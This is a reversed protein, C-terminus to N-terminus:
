LTKEMLYFRGKRWDVNGTKVFGLQNYLRQAYPNLSFVDLRIDRIKKERLVQEIHEMTQRAIGMNQLEPHVCLRHIVYFEEDPCIWKGNKYEEDCEQNLVYIVAIHGQLSGIFLQEKEIDEGLIAKDPYISDWQKIGGAEMAEIAKTVLLFVEELDTKRAQRYKLQIRM